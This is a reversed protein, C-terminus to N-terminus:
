GAVVRTFGYTLGVVLIGAIVVGAAIAPIAAKLRINLMAAILSGTWAGTGPLPIAVVLILGIIEGKYVLGGKSYAKKELREAIGALRSSKKKMWEFIRRIFIIIFPVPVMNGVLSVLLCTVPDLGMSVGLPIAGRLEIVPLMSVFFTILIKGFDSTQLFELINM